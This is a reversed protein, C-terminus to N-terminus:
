EPRPENVIFRPERHEPHGIRLGYLLTDMNRAVDSFLYNLLVYEVACGEIPCRVVVPEVADLRAQMRQIEERFAEHVPQKYARGM